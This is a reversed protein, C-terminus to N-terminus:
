RVVRLSSASSRAQSLEPVLDHLVALAAGMDRRRCAESLAALKSAVLGYDAVQPRSLLVGAMDTGVPPEERRFLEEYLKEGPRLGTIVIPIDVEPVKGALRIMQRALDIIKVPQGMDLVYIAGQDDRGRGLAAAQLVLEVAERTTMFFREVERHTVTLPGGADLQKQFLPVVSGTSGLVNGFRVTIFRTSGRRLDCAQCYIEAIRKSAGMINVPNVAKDTSILVMAAVGGAVCADAVHRTGIVNTLLGELPNTEVMPVHKLAAAHFVLEPKEKAIVESIRAADRVDALVTGVPQQPHRTRVELDIAYLNFEAHDLLTLRAPNADSIQRVLEAGISGGAGTVLVRRGAIMAAMADRDLKLQPRGLLDELAVPRPRLDMEGDDDYARVITPVPVRALQCGASQAVDLFHRILDGGVDSRVLVLKDPKLDRSALQDIVRPLDDDHGLVEVGHILQGIHGAKDTVMGVITFPSTPDREVARVFQEAEPGAGILLLTSVGPAGPARGRFRHDKALRVALRPGALFAALLVGSLVPLSRPMAELRNILFWAPLFVLVVIVATRALHYADRASVYEWVHRYIGTFLYVAAAVAAFAAAMIFIDDLRLAFARDGLRLYFALVFAAAAVAVDHVFVALNRAQFLVRVRARIAVRATEVASTFPSDPM